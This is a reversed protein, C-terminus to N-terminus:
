RKSQCGDRGISRERRAGARARISGGFYLLCLAKLLSDLNRVGTARFGNIAVYMLATLWVQKENPSSRQIMRSFVCVHLVLYVTYMMQKSKGGSVQFVVRSRM